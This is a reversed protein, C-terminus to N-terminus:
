GTNIENHHTLLPRNFAKLGIEALFQHYENQRKKMHNKTLVCLWATLTARFWSFFIYKSWVGKVSMPIAFVKCATEFWELRRNYDTAHIVEVTPTKSEPNKNVNEEIWRLAVMSSVVVITVKQQHNPLGIVRIEEIDWILCLNSKEPCWVTQAVCHCPYYGHTLNISRLNREGSAELLPEFEMMKSQISDNEDM